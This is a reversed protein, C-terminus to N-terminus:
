QIKEKKALSRLAIRMTHERNQDKEDCEDWKARLEADRKGAWYNHEPKHAYILWKEIAFRQARDQHVLFACFPASERFWRYQSRLRERLNGSTGIYICGMQEDFLAYVGPSDPINGWPTKPSLPFRM